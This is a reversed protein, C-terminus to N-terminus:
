LNELIKNKIINSIIKTGRKNPHIGDNLNLDPKLAVDKLLFPILPINHKKSLIVYVNDFKKKYINGYSKPAVMGALIIKIKKKNAIQIIKELNKKTEEPNIGRLMDNAGLCLIILSIDSDSLSWEARNLGNASTSGSVSGNIVEFIYGESTLDNELVTSLHYEVPLGYGAMISDGFLLIKEKAYVKISVLCLLIIKIFFIKNM